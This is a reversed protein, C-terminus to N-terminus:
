PDHVVQGSYDDLIAIIVLKDNLWECFKGLWALYKIGLAVDRNEHTNHLGQECLLQVHDEATDRFPQSVSFVM